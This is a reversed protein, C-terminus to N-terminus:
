VYWTLNRLPLKLVRIFQTLCLNCSFRQVCLRLIMLVHPHFAWRSCILLHERMKCYCPHVSYHPSMKACLFSAYLFSLTEFQQRRNEGSPFCRLILCQFGSFSVCLIWALQLCENTCLKVAYCSVVNCNQPLPNKWLPFGLVPRVVVSRVGWQCRM